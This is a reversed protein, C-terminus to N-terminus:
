PMISKLKLMLKISKLWGQKYQQIAFGQWYCRAVNITMKAWRQVPLDTKEM